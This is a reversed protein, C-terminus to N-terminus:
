GKVTKVGFFTAIGSIIGGVGGVVVSVLKINDIRKSLNQVDEKCAKEMLEIKVEKIESNIGTIDEKIDELHAITKGKFEAMSIKYNNPNREPM